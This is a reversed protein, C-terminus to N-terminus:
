VSKSYKHRRRSRPRNIDYKHSRNKMKMKMKKIILSTMEYICVCKNKPNNQLINRIIKPHYRPDLIHIIKMFFFNLRLTKSLM